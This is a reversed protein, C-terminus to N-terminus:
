WGPGGPVAPGGPTGPAPAGSGSAQLLQVDLGERRMRLDIYLLGTVAASFPYFVAGALVTGISSVLLMVALAVFSTDPGVLAGGLGGAVGFPLGIIQIGVSVIITTLLLIGLVRWFSGKTLAWSRRMAGTVPQGELLLAPGALSWRVVLWAVVPIWAVFGLFLLVGGLVNQDAVLLLVGPVLPVAAALGGALVTLTSTLLTLGVIAWMRRRTRQWLEGPPIRNGLVAGSVAVVLLAQLITLAIIQLVSAVMLSLLLAIVSSVEEVTPEVDPDEFGLPDGLQALLGAQPLLTVLTVVALVIASVGIMTRPNTRIAQFAGDFIEGLSLPRLPVIGPRPAAWAVPAMGPYAAPAAGPHAATPYGPPPSGPYAATPPPVAGLPAPAPSGPVAWQPPAGYGSPAPAAGWASPPAPPPPPPEAPPSSPPVPGGVPDDPSYWPPPQSM